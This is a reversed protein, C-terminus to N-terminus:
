YKILLIDTPNARARLVCNYDHILSNPLPPPAHILFKTLKIGIKVM